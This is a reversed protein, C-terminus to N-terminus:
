KQSVFKILNIFIFLFRYSVRILIYKFHAINKCIIIKIITLICNKYLCNNIITYNGLMLLNSILNVEDILNLTPNIYKYITSVYM